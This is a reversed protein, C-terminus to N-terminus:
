RLEGCLGEIDPDGSRIQAEIAAIEQRCREVQQDPTM